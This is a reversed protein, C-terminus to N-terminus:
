SASPVLDLLAQRDLKGRLTRPLAQVLVLSRPVKHAPLHNRCWTLIEQTTLSDAAAAVVARIRQGGGDEGDVGLVAAEAVAPHRTLVSEIERPNVKKGRVNIQDDARGLLVLEGDRLEGLDQSRFRGDALDESAEPWYSSAVAPSRVIVRGQGGLEVQVGDVPTGLTGREAADGRRDYTIGGTESAGYFIHVSLGYRQRFATATEARLPAGAAIVLRLAPPRAPPREMRLVAELYAPVTPLFTAGLEAGTALLSLPRDAQPLILVSGRLLAPLAVSALGYSHSLPIGTLIREESRLGMAAALGADDAVLAAASTLIGRPAGTSGSTMKVAAIEEPVQRPPGSCTELHFGTGGAKSDASTETGMGPGAVAPWAERSWLCATAGLRRGVAQAEQPRVRSDLLIAAARCRQVALFGALFAPGNPASLTILSGPRPDVAARIQEALAEALELVQGRTAQRGPSQVLIEDRGRRVCAEFAALIPQSAM